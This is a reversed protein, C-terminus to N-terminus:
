FQGDGSDIGDSGDGGAARMVGDGWVVALGGWAVGLGGWAVGLSPALMLGMVGLWGAPWLWGLGLWGPPWGALPCLSGFGWLGLSWECAAVEWFLVTM